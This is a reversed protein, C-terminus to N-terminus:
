SLLLMSHYQKGKEDGRFHVRASTHPSLLPSIAISPMAEQLAASSSWHAVGYGLVRPVTVSSLLWVIGQALVKSDEQWPSATRSLSTEVTHTLGVKGNELVGARM